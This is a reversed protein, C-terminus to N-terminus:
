HLPFRSNKKYSAIYILINGVKIVFSIRTQAYMYSCTYCHSAECM